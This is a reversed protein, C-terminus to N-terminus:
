KNELRSLRKNLDQLCWGYAFAVFAMVAVVLVMTGLIMETM